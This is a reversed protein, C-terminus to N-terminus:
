TGDLFMVCVGADHFCQSTGSTSSYHWQLVVQCGTDPERRADSKPASERARERNCEVLLGDHRADADPWVHVGSATM